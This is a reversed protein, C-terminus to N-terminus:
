TSDVGNHQTLIGIFTHCCYPHHVLNYHKSEKNKLYDIDTSRHQTRLVQSCPHPVLHHLHDTHRQQQVQDHSKHDTGDQM